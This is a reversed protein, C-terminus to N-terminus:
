LWWEPTLADLTVIKENEYDLMIEVDQYRGIMLQAVFERCAGCPAGTKGDPMIALVRRIENHQRVFCDFEPRRDMDEGEMIIKAPELLEKAQHCFRSVGDYRKEPTTLEYLLRERRNKIIFSQVFHQENSYDMHIVNPDPNKM